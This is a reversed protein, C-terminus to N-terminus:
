IFIAQRVVTLCPIFGSKKAKGLYPRRNFGSHKASESKLRKISANFVDDLHEVITRRNMGLKAVM